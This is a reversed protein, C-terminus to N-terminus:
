AKKQTPPDNGCVPIRPEQTLEYPKIEACAKLNFIDHAHAHARVCMGSNETLIKQRLVPRTIRFPVDKEKSIFNMDPQYELVGRKIGRLACDSTNKVCFGDVRKKSLFSKNKMGGDINMGHIAPHHRWANKKATRYWTRAFLLINHKFVDYLNNEPLSLTTFLNRKSNQIFFTQHNLSLYSHITRCSYHDVCSNGLIKSFEVM